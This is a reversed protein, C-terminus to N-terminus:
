KVVEITGKVTVNNAEMIFTYNGPMVTVNATPSISATWCINYTQEQPVKVGPTLTTHPLWVYADYVKQGNSNVITLRLLGVNFAEEGMLMVRM